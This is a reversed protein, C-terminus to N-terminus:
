FKYGMGVQWGKVDDDYNDVDVDSRRYKIHADWDSTIDYGVGIEYNTSDDGVGVQAFGQWRDALPLQGKLGIQYGWFHQNNYTDTKIYSGGGYASVYPTIHYTGVLYNENIKYDNDGKTYNNVYQIDWNNNLVYTVDGGAYRSHASRGGEKQDFGYNINAKLDGAEPNKIPAAMAVASVAMLAALAGALAIKKM